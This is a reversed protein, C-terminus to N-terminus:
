LVGSVANYLKQFAGPEKKEPESVTASTDVKDPIAIKETPKTGSPVADYELIGTEPNIRKYIDMESGLTKRSEVFSWDSESAIKIYADLIDAEKYLGLNDFENAIRILEKM